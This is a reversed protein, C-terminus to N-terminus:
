LRFILFLVVFFLETLITKTTQFIPSIFKGINQINFVGLSKIDLQFYSFDSEVKQILINLKTQYRPLDRVIEQAEFVVLSTLFYFISTLVILLVILTLYSPIKLKKSFNFLPTFLITLLIAFALPRLFAVFTKLVYTLFVLAIFIISYKVINDSYISEVAHKRAM